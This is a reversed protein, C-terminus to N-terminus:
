PRATMFVELLSTISRAQNPGASLYHVFRAFDATEVAQFRMSWDAFARGQVPGDALRTVSRHRSDAAIAAFLARVSKAGGEPVQMVHGESYLLGGTIGLRANTARWHSL